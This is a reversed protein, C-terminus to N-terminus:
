TYGDFDGSTVCAILQETLKIIEQKRASFTLYMTFIKTTKLSLDPFVCSPDIQDTCSNICVHCVKLNVCPSLAIIHSFFHWVECSCLLSSPGGRRSWYLYLHPVGIILLHTWCMKLIFKCHLVCLKQQITIANKRQSREADGWCLCIFIM